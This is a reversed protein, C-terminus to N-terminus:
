QSLPLFVRFYKVLCSLIAYIRRWIFSLPRL